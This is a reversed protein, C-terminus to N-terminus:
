KIAGKPLTVLSVGHCEWQIELDRALEGAINFLKPPLGLILRCLKPLGRDVPTGAFGDLGPEVLGKVGAVSLYFLYLVHFVWERLDLLLNRGFEAM